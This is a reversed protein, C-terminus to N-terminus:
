DLRQVYFITRLHTEEDRHDMVYKTSETPITSVPIKVKNSLDDDWGAPENRYNKDGPVKAPKLRPMINDMEELQGRVIIFVDDLQDTPIKFHIEEDIRHSEGKALNVDEFFQERYWLIGNRNGMIYDGTDFNKASVIYMGAVEETSKYVGIQNAVEEIFTFSDDVNECKLYSIKVRFKTTAVEKEEEKAETQCSLGPWKNTAKPYGADMKAIGGKALESKKLRLYKKDKFLYFNENAYNLGASLTGLSGIEFVDSIKHKAKGNQMQLTRSQKDMIIVESGKFLYVVADADLAADVGSQWVGTWDKRILKPYGPLAKNTKKSYRICENGKFLYITEEDYNLAADVGDTWVGGWHGKIPKPYGADVKFNKVSFRYYQDGKFFYVRNNDFRVAADVPCQAQTKQTFLCIFFLILIQLSTKM